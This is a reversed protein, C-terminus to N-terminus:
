GAPKKGAVIFSQCFDLRLLSFLPSLLKRATLARGPKNTWWRAISMAEFGTLTVVGGLDYPSFATRHTFELQVGQTFVNPVSVIFHGGPKVCDYISRLMGLAAEGDLHEIVELCLVLDFPDSIEDLSYFDHENTRDLDVSMYRSGTWKTEVPTKMHRTTAGVDLVTAPAGAGAPFLDLPSCVIPYRWPDPFRRRFAGRERAFALWPGAASTEQSRDASPADAM